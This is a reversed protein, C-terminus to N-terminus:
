CSSAPPPRDWGGGAVVTDGTVLHHCPGGRTSPRPRSAVVRHSSLADGFTHGFVDYEYVELDEVFAQPGVCVAHGRHRRDVYFVVWDDTNNAISSIADDHEYSSDDDTVSEMDGRMSNDEYVCVQGPDCRGSPDCGVLGPVALGVGVLLVGARAWGRM